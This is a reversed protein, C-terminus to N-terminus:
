RADLRRCQGCLLFPASTGGDDEVIHDMLHNEPFWADCDDCNGFDQKELESEVAMDLRALDLDGNVCITSVVKGIKNTVTIKYAKM